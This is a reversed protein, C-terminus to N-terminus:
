SGMGLLSVIEGAVQAATKGDTTVSISAAEKYLPLREEVLQEVRSSWEPTKLLPRDTSGRLRKLLWPLATELFVVTGSHKMAERNEPRLVIGGGTSIVQRNGQAAAKLAETELGRFFLEGKTEFLSSITTQQESEIVRDLDVFRYGTLSALVKGTVTKGSGMMGVLYINM